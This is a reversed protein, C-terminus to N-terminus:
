FIMLLEDKPAYCLYFLLIFRHMSIPWKPAHRYRFYIWKVYKIYADADADITNKTKERFLEDLRARKRQFHHNVNQYANRSFQTLSLSGFNPKTDFFRKCKILQWWWDNELLRIEWWVSIEFAFGFCM